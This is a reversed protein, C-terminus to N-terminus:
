PSLADEDWLALPQGPEQTMAESVKCSVAPCHATTSSFHVGPLTGWSRQLPRWKSAKDIKDQVGKIQLDEKKFLVNNEQQVSGPISWAKRQDNMKNWLEALLLWGQQSVAIVEGEQDVHRIVQHM